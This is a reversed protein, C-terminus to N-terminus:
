KVWSGMGLCVWNATIEWTLYGELSCGYWNMGCNWWKLRSSHGCWQEYITNVLSLGWVFGTLKEGSKGGQRNRLMSYVHGVIAWRFPIQKGTPRVFSKAVYQVTFVFSLKAHVCQIFQTCTVHCYQIVRKIWWFKLGQMLWVLKISIGTGIPINWLVDRVVSVYGVYMFVCM